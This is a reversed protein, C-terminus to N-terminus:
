DFIGPRLTVGLGSANPVSICGDAVPLEECILGDSLYRITDLGCPRIDEGLSAALHLIAATGIGSEFTSTIVAKKDLNSVRRFLEISKSIGGAVTPKIIASSIADSEVLMEWLAMDQITEDLAFSMGTEVQLDQLREIDNRCLPEEVYEIRLGGLQKLVTVAHAFDWARNADLRLSAGEGLQERVFEVRRIDNELSDSGVKLKFARYENQRLSEMQERIARMDGYLLANIPVQSASDPSIWRCLPLSQSKAAIEALATEFGFIVSPPYGGADNFTNELASFDVPIDSGSIDRALKDASQRADPLSEASYNGLPAIEGVGVTGDDTHVRVIVGKRQTRAGQSTTLAGTFAVSYEKFQVSDIKV